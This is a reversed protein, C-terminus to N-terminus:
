QKGFIQGKIARGIDGLEPQIPWWLKLITVSDKHVVKVQFPKEKNSSHITEARITGGVSSKGDGHLREWAKLNFSRQIEAPKLPRAYADFKDQVDNSPYFREVGAPLPQVTKPAPAPKKSSSKSNSKKVKDESKKEDKPPM